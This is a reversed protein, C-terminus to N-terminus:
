EQDSEIIDSIDAIDDPDDSATKKSQNKELHPTMINSIKSTCDYICLNYTWLQRLYYIKNTQILPTLLTQQLDFCLVRCKTNQKAYSIDKEKSRAVNEAKRHHVELETKLTKRLNEDHLRRAPVLKGCTNTYEKVKSRLTKRKVKEWVKTEVKRKRTRRPTSYVPIHADNNEIEYDFVKDPVIEDDTSLDRQSDKLEEPNCDSDTDTAYHIKKVVMMVVHM